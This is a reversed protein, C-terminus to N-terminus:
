QQLALGLSLQNAVKSRIAEAQELTFRFNNREAAWLQQRTWRPQMIGAPTHAKSGLLLHGLEHATALGLLGSLDGGKGLSDIRDFFVTALVGGEETVAAFGLHDSRFSSQTSGFLKPIIRLSLTPEKPTAECPCGAWKLKIGAERFIESAVTQGKELTAPSVKAWNYVQVTITLNEGSDTVSRALAAGPFVLAMGFVFTASVSCRQKM